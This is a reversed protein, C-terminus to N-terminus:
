VYGPGKLKDQMEIGCNEIFIKSSLGKLRYICPLYVNPQNMCFHKLGLVSNFLLFVQLALSM